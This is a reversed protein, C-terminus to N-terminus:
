KSNDVVIDGNPLETEKPLVKQQVVPKPTDLAPTPAQPMAGKLGSSVISKKRDHSARAIEAATQVIKGNKIKDGRANVGMNGLATTTENDRRISEMDITRGRYSVHKSM